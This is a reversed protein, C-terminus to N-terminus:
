KKVQFYKVVKQTPNVGEKNKLSYYVKRAKGGWSYDGDEEVVDVVSFIDLDVGKRLQYYVNRRTTPGFLKIYHKHADYATLKGAVFLIQALATRVISVM